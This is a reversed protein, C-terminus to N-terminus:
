TKTSDQKYRGVEGVKLTKQKNKALQISRISYFSAKFLVSGVGNINL